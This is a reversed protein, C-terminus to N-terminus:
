RRHQALVFKHFPDLFVVGVGILRHEIASIDIGHLLVTGLRPRAAIRIEAMRDFDGSQHGIELEVLFRDSGRKQVIRHFIREGSDGIDLQVEAGLHRPQDIADGLQRLDFLHGFVLPRRFVEPFEQERHALVDAHQEDFQAVPQVIHAREMENLIRVLALADRALRHIDVGRERLPHPHIFIHALHLQEGEFLQLGFGIAGDLVTEILQTREVGPLDVLDCEIDLVREGLRSQLDFHRAALLVRIRDPALHGFAMDAEFLHGVDHGEANDGIVLRIAVRGQADEVARPLEQRALELVVDRRRLGVAIATKVGAQHVFIRHADFHLDARAFHMPQVFEAEGRM